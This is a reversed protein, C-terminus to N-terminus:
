LERNLPIIISILTGKGPATIIDLEGNLAKSRTQLSQMGLGSIKKQENFEFGVGNDEITCVIDTDDKVIQVDIKTCNAHKLANNLTEQIMRFLNIEISQSINYGDVNQYYYFQIDTNKEYDEVLAEVALALGFDEIAKPLLNQAVSRSEKIAHKLLGLGHKYQEHQEEPMAKTYELIADFTMNAASLYQGLGDHLEMAVRRREREEGEILSNIVQKEIQRQETIDNAIVLRYTEGSYNIDSASIEAILQEGNKKLHVWEEFRVDDGRKEKVNMIVKDKDQEPRIDLISMQLFEDKEYGYNKVAAENVEIFNFSEPDYIFMPIPNREFLLRYQEESRELQVKAENEATIDTIAGIMGTVVGTDDTLIFCRDYVLAYSGDQKEFRYRSEWESVANNIASWMSAVIEAKEEPHIKSEWWEITYEVSDADYGFKSHIGENWWHYDSKVEWHYIVDNTSKAILEFRIREKELEEQAAKMATIDQTTAIRYLIEGAENKVATLNILVPFRSGDKRVHVSEFVHYGREEAIAINEPVLHRYDKAYVNEIPMGAMEDATYGYLAANADNVRIFEKQDYSGISIGSNTLRFVDALVQLERETEKLETIDLVTGTLILNNGEEDKIIKGKEQFIGVSGDPKIVRYVSDIFGDIQFQEQEYKLKERDDPHVLELFSEVNIDFYDKQLGFMEYISDSWTLVGTQLNMEWHGLGAVQQAQLLQDRSRILEEQQRKLDTIDRSLAVVGVMSDNDDKLMNVSSLVTKYTGEKTSQKAEGQWQGTKEFEERIEDAEYDLYITEIVKDFENGIMEDATYGYLQEASENWSQVKYEKDLTIVAETVNQLVFSNYRQVNDAEVRDTIDIHTGIMRVPKGEDDWEVVKGRGLVWVWHGAKHKMRVQVDYVETEGRFHRELEKSSIKFDEPHAVKEWIGISIPELEDKTYGIISAWNENIILEGTQVNWDYLAIRTNDTALQLREESQRLEDRTKKEETVDIHTGLMRVPKGKDDWEVTRGKDLIWVWHGEKHKMRIELEYFPAKGEFYDNVVVEFYKLDEPHVLKNWTEISVPELEQISYGILNAWVENIILEGTQPYWEWLGIEANTTALTLREEKDRIEQQLKERETIDIGIGLSKGDALQINSWTTKLFKGDKTRLEFDQWEGNLKDIHMKVKQYEEKDPVLERLLDLRNADETSYGVQEEFYKNVAAVGSNEDHINIMVPMYDYIEQLEDLNKQIQIEYNKRETIDQTLGTIMFPSGDDSYSIKGVAHLHRIEQGENLVRYSVDIRGESIQSIMSNVLRERDDEVVSNLFMIATGDFSGDSFGMMSQLMESLYVKNEESLLEDSNFIMEWHGIQGMKEAEILKDRQERIANEQEKRITIDQITCIMSDPNGDEDLHLIGLGYVWREAGDSKRIIKYERDFKKKLLICQELYMVVDEIFDPHICSEWKEITLIEDEDFGFIRNLTTSYGAKDTKLDLRFAGLNAVKQVEALLYEKELLKLENIKRDTIDLGIGIQTNDSLKVNTWTSLIVEGSHDRMEMDMWNGDPKSMFDLAQERLQRDPYVREVFNDKRADEDTYGTVKKFEENISLESLEPNYVTIMVPINQFMLKMLEQERKLNEEVQKSHLKLALDNQIAFMFKEIQENERIELGSYFMFVALVKNEYIVPVSILSKLGAKKAEASRLYKKESQLDHIWLIKKKSATVGPLGIGEKFNFEESIKDFAAIRGDENDFWSSKRSLDSNKDNYAWVEGYDWRNHVCIMELIKNFVDNLSHDSDISILLKLLLDTYSRLMKQETIDGIVGSVRVPKGKENHQAEGKSWMWRIEGDVVIRYEVDYDGRGAILNNLATKVHPRDEEIVQSLFDDVTWIEPKNDLGFLTHHLDSRTSVGTELNFDWTAMRASDLAYNLSERSKEALLAEKKYMLKLAIDRSIVSFFDILQKDRNQKKTHYLILVANVDGGMMVPISFLSKLGANVTEEKYAYRKDTELDEVWQPQMTQATLGTLGEGPAFSLTDIFIDLEKIEERGDFWSVNKRFKGDERRTIAIGYDWGLERCLTNLIMKLALDYNEAPDTSNLIKPLLSSYVEFLKKEHIDTIVIEQNALASFEQQNSIMQVWRYNGDKDIIRADVNNTGYKGDILNQVQTKDTRHIVELLDLGELESRSMGTLLNFGKNVEKIVGKKLVLLGLEASNLLAKFQDSYYEIQRNSYKILFYLATATLLMYFWGKFTQLRSLEQLDDTFWLLVSDSVVIWIVAFVFYILAIGLPTLKM